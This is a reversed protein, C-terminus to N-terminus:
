IVTIVQTSHEIQEVGKAGFALNLRTEPSINKKISIGRCNTINSFMDRIMVLAIHARSIGAIDPIGVLISPSECPRKAYAQWM